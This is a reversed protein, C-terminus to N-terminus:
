GGGEVGDGVLQDERESEWTRGSWSTREGNWAHRVLQDVRGDMLFSVLDRGRLESM